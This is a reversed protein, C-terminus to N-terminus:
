RAEGSPDNPLWYFYTKRISKDGKGLAREGAGNVQKRLLEASGLACWVQLEMSGERHMQPPSPAGLGHPGGWIWAWAWRLLCQLSVRHRSSPSRPPGPLLSAILVGLLHGAVLPDRSRATVKSM